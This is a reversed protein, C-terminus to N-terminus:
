RGAVLHPLAVPDQIAMHHIRGRALPDILGQQQQHLRRAAESAFVHHLEVAVAAQDAHLPHQLQHQGAAGAPGLGPFEALPGEEMAAEIEGPGLRHTLQHRGAAAAGGLQRDGAEIAAQLPLNRAQALAQEVLQGFQLGPHIKLLIQGQEIASRHRSLQRRDPRFQLLQDRARGLPLQQALAQPHRDHAPGIHAFRAQEVPEAAALPRDHGVQRAGGAVQDFALQHELAHGEGQEVGGADAGGVVADLLEADLAAAGGQGRGVQHQQQEVQGGTPGALVLGQPGQHRLPHGTQHHAVLQVM